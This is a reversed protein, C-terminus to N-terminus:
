GESTEPVEPEMEIRLVNLGLVSQYTVESAIGLVMRIGINAAPDEGSTIQAWEVPNFPICDDRVSTHIRCNENIVVRIDATHSGRGAHFGHKVINGAMEELCLATCMSEKAPVGHDSCFRQVKESVSTVDDLSRITTSLGPHVDPGFIRDILLWESLTRPIGRNCIISYIFGLSATILIGLFLAIWVGTAGCVPTLLLAPIVMGLFGDFVSMLNVFVKRKLAQFYNSTVTCILVLPICFGYIRFLTRTQTFAATGDDPFFIGALPSAFLFVLVGMGVCMPLVRTLVIRIIEPVAERDHEGIFVSTLMRVVTGTGLGLAIFLGTIMNFASMAPLGGEEGYRILLRNIVMYRAALCIVLIAGPFGIGAMDGLKKWLIGSISYVFVTRGSFFHPVLVLFYIWNSISTALALGFLGMHLVYVFLIDLLVNSIILLVSGAYNRIYSHEMQLFAALQTALLMPIIGVAYGAAYAALDRQMAATQAGLASSLPAALVSNVLTLVVGALFTVTLNLSFMGRIKETDGRGLYRGCIVATGGLLVAGVAEFIRVMSYYLGIAGVADAGIGRAAVVGDVISNASAMAVILVQVPLLRFFLRTLVQSLQNGSRM